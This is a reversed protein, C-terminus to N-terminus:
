EYRMAISNTAQNAWSGLSSKIVLFNHSAGYMQVSVQAGDSFDGTKLCVAGLLPNDLKGVFPWFPAVATSNAFTATTNTTQVTLGLSEFNLPGGNAQPLITQQGCKSPAVGNGSLLVSVYSSTDNGNADHSREISFFMPFTFARFMIFSIRGATGSFDCEFTTTLGGGSSGGGIVQRTNANTLTGSGNSGSGVTVAMTPIATSGGSGYEVKVAVPNSTSLSDNMTWIEYVFTGAAPAAAISNWNVQGTDSSQVWGFTSFATSLAQAWAKFNALSSNDALAFIQSTAM